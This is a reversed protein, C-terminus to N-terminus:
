QFAAALFFQQKYVYLFYTTQSLRNQMSPCTLLMVKKLQLRDLKSYRLNMKSM